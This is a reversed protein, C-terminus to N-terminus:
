LGSQPLCAGVREIALRGLDAGLRVMTGPRDFPASRARRARGPPAACSPALLFSGNPGGRRGYARILCPFESQQSWSLVPPGSKFARRRARRKISRPRDSLRSGSSESHSSWPLRFLSKCPPFRTERRPPRPLRNWGIAPWVERRLRVQEPQKCRPWSCSPPAYGDRFVARPCRYSHDERVIPGM